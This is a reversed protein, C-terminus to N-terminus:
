AHRQLRFDEIYQTTRPDDGGLDLSQLERMREMQREVLARLREMDEPDFEAGVYEKLLARFTEETLAM